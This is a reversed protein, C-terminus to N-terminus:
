IWWVFNVIDFGWAIPINIGFIGVGQVLLYALSCMLLATGLFGLGFLAFWEMPTKRTLVLSSIKETITAYTHGPGILPPTYPTEPISERMCSFGQPKSSPM